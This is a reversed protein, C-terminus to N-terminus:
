DLQLALVALGAALVVPDGDVPDLLDDDLVHADGEVDGAVVRLRLPALLRPAALAGIGVTWRHRRLRPPAAGTAEGTAFVVPSPSRAGLLAHPLPLAAPVVVGSRGSDREFRM